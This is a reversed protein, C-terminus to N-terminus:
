ELLFVKIVGKDIVVDKIINNATQMAFSGDKLKYIPKKSFYFNLLMEAAIILKKELSESLNNNEIKDVKIKKLYINAGDYRIDSRAYIRFVPVSGDKLVFSSSQTDCAFLIINNEKKITLKPNSFNFKSFLLKKELPFKEEINENLEETTIVYSFAYLNVVTLIFIIILKIM